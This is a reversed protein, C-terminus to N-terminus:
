FKLAKYSPQSLGEKDIKSGWESVQKAYAEGAKGTEIVLAVFIQVVKDVKDRYAHTKLGQGKPDGVM